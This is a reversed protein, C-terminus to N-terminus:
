VVRTGRKSTTRRQQRHLKWRRLRCKRRACIYRLVSPSISLAHTRARAVKRRKENSRSGEKKRRERERERERVCACVCVRERRTRGPHSQSLSLAFLSSPCLFNRVRLYKKREKEKKKQCVRPTTARKMCYNVSTSFNKKPFVFSCLLFVRVIIREWRRATAANEEASQDDELFLTQDAGDKHEEKKVDVSKEPEAALPLPLSAIPVLRGKKADESSAMRLLLLLLLLLSSSSPLPPRADNERSSFVLLSLVDLRTACKPRTNSAPFLVKEEEVVLAVVVIFLLLLLLM